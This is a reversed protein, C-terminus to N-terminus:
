RYLSRVKVGGIKDMNSFISSNAGRCTIVVIDDLSFGLNRTLNQIIATVAKIQDIDKEYGYM